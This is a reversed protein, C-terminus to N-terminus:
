DKLIDLIRSVAFELSTEEKNISKLLRENNSKSLLTKIKSSIEEIDFPNYIIDNEELGSIISKAGTGQSILLDCGNVLAEIPALGFTEFISNQVFIRSKQYYASMEEYKVEGVYNVFPYSIIEEIDKGGKGNVILKLNMKDKRNILDIARCISLINKQPMGGGVALLTKSDREVPVKESVMGDWDIGNNVYTIKGKYQPYNKKMWNMFFESVCIIRPALELVENEANVDRQNYNQNIKGEISRCGHMLYVSKVDLLKALKFGIINIKSMGSFVVADVKRMKIFLEIVRSTKTKKELFITDTPLYKKLAKNVNAPGTNGILDGVLLLKM